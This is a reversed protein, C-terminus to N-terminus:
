YGLRLSFQIQRSAGASTIRGFTPLDFARRPLNFNPHNLLNFVETRLDIRASERWTWSRVLAADLVLLSPGSLTNRGSNGFRFRGPAAFAATNFFREPSSHTLRPDGAVDPRDAGFIGGANGTNSNDFSLNPTFPPGSQAVGITHFRWGRALRRKGPLDCSLYFVLRHRLDFNSLGREGRANHSNQPFSDDGTTALFESADDISKSYTYAASFAAGPRFRRELSLQGSHFSSSAASEFQAIHAFLPRPRRGNVAGAGPPPQNIDRRRLLKTGKSGAYAARAVLRGPIEREASLKWHQVYSSRFDPQVSNISPAPTFGAGAPFPDRLTLLRQASPFFLNLEFYPPNFYLGSNAELITTDYFVGYSSHIVQKGEADPSWSLGFRPALNNRDAPFGARPVAGAGPPALRGAGLDFVMFRDAADTPPRNLEYRLGINLSLRPSLRWDDQAYANWASSRLAMPNDIVARLTFSPLGLLLDGVAHGSFTPQFQFQGRAFLDNIGDSSFRRYEAGAKLTHRGRAQTWSGLAHYTNDRRIIPLATNDSLRDYGAAVVSPFGFSRPHRSLGPIGLGGGIDNGINQQLVERRLRNFGFRGEWATRAGSVHTDSVVLNQGRNIVFSGFGPLNTNGENFPTLSRDHAFNYRLYFTDRPSFYQDVRAMAQDARLAGVPSSVLNLAPDNRNPDPWYAALAAGVPDLREPPIRNAPFARGTFPDRITVGSTSFDGRKEAAEPVRATKTIGQRLRTGEYGLFFFSRQRRLPGGASAGFQNRQFQPIPSKAPDFFNRADLAANRLYEYIAGHFENSGSRTIVNVQAGGSRGYEAQYGAAHLRFERVGDLPPSVVIRNIFLDNNDVGDLLFNNSAERAGNVHLGSNNQRSLESGPAAPHAGAALLALQLFERENLPLDALTERSILVGLAASHPELLPTTDSVLLKQRAIDLSLEIDARLSRGLELRLQREAPQFGPHAAQIRYEGVRLLAFAYEGAEDTERIQELGTELQQARVQARAVAAGAPDLIKGSIRGSATQAPLLVPLLAAAALLRYLSMDPQFFKLM